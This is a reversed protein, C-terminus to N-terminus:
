RMNVMREMEELRFEVFQGPITDDMYDERGYKGKNRDTFLEKWKRQYNPSYCWPEHQQPLIRNVLQNHIGSRECIDIVTQLEEIITFMVSDRMFPDDELDDDDGSPTKCKKDTDKTPKDHAHKDSCPKSLSGASYLDKFTKLEEIKERLNKIINSQKTLLSATNDAENLLERKDQEIKTIKETMSKCGSCNVVVRTTSKTLQKARENLSAIQDDRDSLARRLRHIEDMCADRTKGLKDIASEQNSLELSTTSLQEILSECKNNLQRQKDQYFKHIDAITERHRAAQENKARELQSITEDTTLKIIACKNCTCEMCYGAAAETKPLCVESTFHETARGRVSSKNLKMLPIDFDKNPLEKFGKPPIIFVNRCLACKAQDGPDSDEGCKELCKLCFTHRCPLIKPETFIKSCISCETPHDTKKNLLSISSTAM